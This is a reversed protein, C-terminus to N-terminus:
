GARVPDSATREGPSAGTKVLSRGIEMEAPGLTWKIAAPLALTGAVLTGLVLTTVPPWGTAVVVTGSAVILAVPPVTPVLVTRVAPVLDRGLERLVLPLLQPLVVASGCLTGVFAGVVGIQGLLVPTAALKVLVGSWAARRLRSVRGTGTLVNVGVQFPAHLATYVLGLYVLPLVDAPLDRGLWVDLVREAFVGLFAVASWAALVSVRTGIAVLQRFLARDGQAELWSAASIATYSSTSLVLQGIDRLRSAVEVAAVAAPGLLLAVLLRDMSRHLVGSANLMALGGAERLLAPGDLPRGFPVFSRNSRLLIMSAVAAVGAAAAASAAMVMPLTGGALAAVVAAGTVVTRRSADLLRAVDVRQRGELLAGWGFVVAESVVWLGAWRAASRLPGALDTEIPLVAPLVAGGVVALALGLIAGLGAFCIVAGAAAAPRGAVEAAAVRRTYTVGFGVSLASPWGNVASFSLLLAWLGFQEVGLQRLLVPVVVAALPLAWVGTAGTVITNRVLRTRYPHEARSM